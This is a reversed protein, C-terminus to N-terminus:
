AIIIRKIIIKVKLKEMKMEIGKLNEIKIKMLIKLMNIVMIISTLISILKKKMIKQLNVKKKLHTYIMRKKKSDFVEDNNNELDNKVEVVPLNNDKLFNIYDKKNKKNKM